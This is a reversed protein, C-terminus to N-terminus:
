IIVSKRGLSIGRFIVFLVHLVKYFLETDADSWRHSPTRKMYSHYNLKPRTPEDTQNIDDGDGNLSPSRHQFTGDMAVGGQFGPADRCIHLLSVEM